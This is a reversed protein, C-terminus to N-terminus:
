KENRTSVLQATSALQLDSMPLNIISIEATVPSFRTVHGEEERSGRWPQGKGGGSKEKLREM